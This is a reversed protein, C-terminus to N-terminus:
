KASLVYKKVGDRDDSSYEEILKNLTDVDETKFLNGIEKISAAM